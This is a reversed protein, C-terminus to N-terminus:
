TLLVADEGVTVVDGRHLQRGRRVDVEDNVAVQGSTILEKADARSPVIGAVKLLQGLRIVEGRIEVEQM